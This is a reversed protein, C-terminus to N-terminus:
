QSNKNFVGQMLGWEAPTVECLSLAGSLSLGLMSQIHQVKKAKLEIHGHPFIVETTEIDTEEDFGYLCIHTRLDEILTEDIHKEM